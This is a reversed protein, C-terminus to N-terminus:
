NPYNFVFLFLLSKLLKCPRFLLLWISSVRLIEYIISCTLMDIWSSSFSGRWIMWLIMKKLMLITYFLNFFLSSCNEFTIRLTYGECRSVIIFANSLYWIFWICFATSATVSISIVPMIYDIKANRDYSSSISWGFGFIIVSGILKRFCM